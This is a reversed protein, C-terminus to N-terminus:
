QSYVSVYGTVADVKISSSRKGGMSVKGEALTYDIKWCPDATSEEYMRVAEMSYVLQMDVVTIDAQNQIGLAQMATSLAQERSILEETRTITDMGCPLQGYVYVPRGYQPAYIIVLQSFVSDLVLGNVEKQYVLILAEDKKSWPINQDPASLRSQYLEAAEEEKGLDYLDDIEDRTVVRFGPVPASSACGPIKQIRELSDLDLAYYSIHAGSYGCAEAYPQCAAAAEEKTCSDIDEEPYIDRMGFGLGEDLEGYPDLMLSYCSAAGENEDAYMVMGNAYMLETGDKDYYLESYQHKPIYNEAEEYSVGLFVETFLERDLEVQTLHVIDGTVSATGVAAPNNGDEGSEAEAVTGNQAPLTVDMERVMKCSSFLLCLSTCLMILKHKRVNM